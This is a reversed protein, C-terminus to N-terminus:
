ASLLPLKKSVNQFLRDTRDELAYYGLLTCSEDVERCFSEQGKFIPGIPQGLVDTLFQWFESHLLGSSCLEWRQQPLLRFDHKSYVKKDHYHVYKCMHLSTPVSHPLINKEENGVQLRQRTTDLDWKRQQHITGVTHLTTATFTTHSPGIANLVNVM